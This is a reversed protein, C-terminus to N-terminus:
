YGNAPMIPQTQTMGTMGGSLGASYARFLNQILSQTGGPNQMMQMGLTSRLADQSSTGSGSGGFLQQLYSLMNTNTNTSAPDSAPLPPYATPSVSTPSVAQPMDFSDKVVFHVTFAIEYQACVAGQACPQKGVAVLDTNGPAMAKYIGQAGQIVAVNPIRALVNPDSINVTWDFGGGLNLLFTDGPIMYFTRNHDNLTIDFSNYGGTGAGPVIPTSAYSVKNAIITNNANQVLGEVLVQMGERLSGAAAERGDVFVRASSGLSVLFKGDALTNLTFSAASLNSITGYVGAGQLSMDQVSDATITRDTRDAHGSVVVTDGTNFQTKDIQSSGSGYFQTDPGINVLWDGAWSSVKLSAADISDLTGRLYIQGAATIRAAPSTNDYPMAGSGVSQALAGGAGLFLSSIMFAAFTGYFLSYKKM